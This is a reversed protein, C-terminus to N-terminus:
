WIGHWKDVAFFFTVMYQAMQKGCHPIGYSFVMQFVTTHAFTGDSITSESVMCRVTQFVTSSGFRVM